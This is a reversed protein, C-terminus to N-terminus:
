AAVEGAREHLAFYVDELDVDDREVAYVHVGAAVLRAVAGAVGAREAVGLTLRGVNTVASAADDRAASPAGAAPVTAVERLGAVGALLAVADVGPPAEYEIVVRSGSGISAALEAPTGVAVV